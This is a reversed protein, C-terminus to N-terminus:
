ELGICFSMLKQREDKDLLGLQINISSNVNECNRMIDHIKKSIFNAEKDKCMYCRQFKKICNDTYGFMTPNDDNYFRTIDNYLWNLDANEEYNFSKKWRHYYINLLLNRVIYFSKIDDLLEDNQPSYTYPIIHERIVELPIKNM